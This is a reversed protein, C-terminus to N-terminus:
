ALTAIDVVIPENEYIEELDSNEHGVYHASELGSGATVTLIMCGTAEGLDALRGEDLNECYEPSSFLIVSGSARMGTADYVDFSPLSRFTVVGEDALSGEQLAISYDLYYIDYQELMALDDEGFDSALDQTSGERLGTITYTAPVELVEEGEGFRYIPVSLGDTVAMESGPETYEASASGGAGAEGEADSEAEESEAEESDATSEVEGEQELAQTAGETMEPSSEGDGSTAAESCGALALALAAAIM